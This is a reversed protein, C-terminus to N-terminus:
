FNQKINAFEQSLNSVKKTTKETPSLPMISSKEEENEEKM